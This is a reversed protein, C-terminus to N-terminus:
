FWSECKTPRVLVSRAEGPARITRRSAFAFRGKDSCRRIGSVAPGLARPVVNVTMPRFVVERCVYRDLHTQKRTSSTPCGVLKRLITDQVPCSPVCITTAPKDIRLHRPGFDSLYGRPDGGM